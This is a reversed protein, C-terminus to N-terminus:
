QGWPDRGPLLAHGTGSWGAGTAVLDFGWHARQEGWLLGAAGGLEACRQGALLDGPAAGPASRWARSPRVGGVSLGGRAWRGAGACLAQAWAVSSARGVRCRAAGQHGPVLAAADQGLRERGGAIAPPPAPCRMGAKAGRPRVTRWVQRALPRTREARERRGQRGCSVAM